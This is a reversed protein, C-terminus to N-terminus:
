GKIYFMPGLIFLLFLGLGVLLWGLSTLLVPPSYFRVFSTKGPAPAQTKVLKWGGISAAAGALLCVVFPSTIKM